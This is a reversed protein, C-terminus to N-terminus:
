FQDIYFLIVFCVFVPLDIQVPHISTLFRSQTSNHNYADEDENEIKPRQKMFVGIAARMDQVCCFEKNFWHAM